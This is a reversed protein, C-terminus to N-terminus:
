HEPRLSLHEAATLLNGQRGLPPPALFFPFLTGLTRAIRGPYRRARIGTSLSWRGHDISSQPLEACTPRRIACTPAHIFSVVPMFPSVVIFTRSPRIIFCVPQAIAASKPTLRRPAGPTHAAPCAVFRVLGGAWDVVSIAHQTGSSSPTSHSVPVASSHAAACPTFRPATAQSGFGPGGGAASIAHQTGSSSSTSHSSSVASSHVASPPVLRPAPVQSGFGHTDGGGGPSM